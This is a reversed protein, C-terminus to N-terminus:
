RWLGKNVLWQQARDAHVRDHVARAAGDAGPFLSAASIGTRECFRFLRVSETAPVTLKMLDKTGRTTFEEELGKSEPAESRGGKLRQVTFLGSQAALRPSVSGPPRVIQISKRYLNITGTNLVWVAIRSEATWDTFGDLARAVAFYVAAYPNRCWDLLRTPVGHPQAFAMVEFLEPNPWKKPELLYQNLNQRSLTKRFAISDGPIRVGVRDCYQAFMELIQGEWFVQLDAAHMGFMGDRIKARQEERLVAPILSWSAVAHGRFALESPDPFLKRTPSLAEWFEEATQYQREFDTMSSPLKGDM